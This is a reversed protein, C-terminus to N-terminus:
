ISQRSFNRALFSLRFLTVEFTPRSRSCRRECWVADRQAAVPRRLQVIAKEALAQLLGSVDCAGKGADGTLVWSGRRQQAPWRPM